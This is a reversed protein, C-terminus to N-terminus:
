EKETAQLSLFATHRHLRDGTKTLLRKGKVSQVFPKRYTKDGFPGRWTNEDKYFVGYTNTNINNMKTRGILNEM